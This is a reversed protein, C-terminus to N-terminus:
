DQSKRDETLTIMTEVAEKIKENKESLEQLEELNGSDVSKAWDYLGSRRDQEEAKETQRLSLVCLKM